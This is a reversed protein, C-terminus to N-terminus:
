RSGHLFPGYSGLFNPSITVKAENFCKCAIKVFRCAARGADDYQIENSRGLNDTARSGPRCM